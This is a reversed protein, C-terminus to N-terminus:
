QSVTNEKKNLHRKKNGLQEEKINNNEIYDLNTQTCYNKLSNNVDQVKKDLDKKGKRTILSSIVIKANTSTQKGKKVIKKM